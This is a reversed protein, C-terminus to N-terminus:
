AKKSVENAIGQAMGTNWSYVSQLPRDTPIASVSNWLSRWIPQVYYHVTAGQDHLARADIQDRENSGITFVEVRHGLAILQLILNYPRTRILNPVYPVIYAINM